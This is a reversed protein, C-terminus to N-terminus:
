IGISKVTGIPWVKIEAELVGHRPQRCRGTGKGYEPEHAEWEFHASWASDANGRVLAVDARAFMMIFVKSVWTM